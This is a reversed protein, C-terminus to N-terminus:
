NERNKEIYYINDALLMEPTKTTKLAAAASTTSSLLADALFGSANKPGGPEREGRSV